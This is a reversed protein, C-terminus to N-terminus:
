RGNNDDGARDALPLPFQQTVAPVARLSAPLPAFLCPVAATGVQGGLSVGV